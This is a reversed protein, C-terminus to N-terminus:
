VAFADRRMPQAGTSRHREQVATDVTRHDGQPKPVFGHVSRLDLQVRPKLELLLCELLGRRDITLGAAVSRIIVQQGEELAELLTAYM